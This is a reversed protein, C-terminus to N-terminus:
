SLHAKALYKKTQMEQLRSKTREFEFALMKGNYLDDVSVEASIILTVGNDYFEDLMTIFRRAVDENDAGMQEVNSILITHYCKALEIYDHASRSQKCLTSFDLWVISDACRITRMERNCILLTEGMSGQEPALKVFYAYLNLEAQSDLPYHYIEADELVLLRYDQKSDLCHINCYIKLLEIAPLFKDRQLGNKYLGDPPINTTTILTIGSVFLQEFVEALIMADAIDSVFLEDLCLVKTEKSLNKVIKKIPDREGQFITLQVHMMQMFRHFHMRMKHKVPLAHFFMDMLHTKGRGVGGWLYLGKSVMCSINLASKVSTIVPYFYSNQKKLDKFIGDFLKVTEFQKEDFNIKNEKVEQTYIKSPLIM